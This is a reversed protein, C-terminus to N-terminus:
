LDSMNMFKQPENDLASSLSGSERELNEIARSRGYFIRRRCVSVCVLVCM